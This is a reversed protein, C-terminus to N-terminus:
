QYSTSMGTNVIHSYYALERMVRSANKYFENRRLREDQTKHEWHKWHRQIKWEENTWRNERVNILPILNAFYSNYISM